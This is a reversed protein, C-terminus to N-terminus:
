ELEEEDNGNEKAHSDQHHQVQLCRSNIAEMKMRRRSGYSGYSKNVKTYQVHFLFNQGKRANSELGPDFPFGGDLASEASDSRCRDPDNVNNIKLGNPEEFYTKNEDEVVKKRQLNQVWLNDVVISPTEVHFESVSSEPPAKDVDLLIGNSDSVMGSENITDIDMTYVDQADSLIEAKTKVRNQVLPHNAM